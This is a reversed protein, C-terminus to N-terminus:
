NGNLIGEKVTISEMYYYGLLPHDEDVVGGCSIVLGIIILM